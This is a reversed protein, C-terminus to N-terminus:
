KRLVWFDVYLLKMFKEIDFGVKKIIKEVDNKKIGDMGIEWCHHPDKTIKKRKLWRYYYGKPTHIGPPLCIMLPKQHSLPSIIAIRKERHPTTVLAKGAKRLYQSINRLNKELDDFPMHELVEACILCDFKEKLEPKLERLDSLIDPNLKQNVDMVKYDEVFNKLCNKVVESGAGIELINKPNFEIVEKIIFFYRYWNDLDLGKLYDEYNMHFQSDFDSKNTM